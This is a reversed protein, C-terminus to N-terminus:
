LIHTCIINMNNSNAFEKIYLKINHTALHQNLNCKTDFKRWMSWEYSGDDTHILQLHSKLHIQIYFKKHSYFYCRISSM